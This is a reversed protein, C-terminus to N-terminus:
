PLVYRFLDNIYDDFGIKSKYEHYIDNGYVNRLNKLLEDHRANIYERFYEQKIITDERVVKGYHIACSWLYEVEGDYSTNYPVIPEDLLPRPLNYGILGSIMKSLIINLRVCCEKGDIKFTYPCELHEVPIFSLPHSIYIGNIKNLIKFETKNPQHSKIIMIIRGTLLVIDHIKDVADLTIGKYGENKVICRIIDKINSSM